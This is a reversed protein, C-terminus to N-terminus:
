ESVKLDEKDFQFKDLCTLAWLNMPNKKLNKRRKKLQPLTVVPLLPVAPLQPLVVPHFPLSNAWAKLSLKTSTKATSNPSFKTSNNKTLKKSFLSKLTRYTRSSVRSILGM